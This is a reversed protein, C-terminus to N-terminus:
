HDIDLTEVVEYNEKEVQEKRTSLYYTLVYYGSIITSCAFMAGIFLPGIIFFITALVAWVGTLVLSSTFDKKNNIEM